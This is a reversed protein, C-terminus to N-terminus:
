RWLRRDYRDDNRRAVFRGRDLRRDAGDEGEVVRSEFHDRHVVPRRVCRTFDELPHARLPRPKADDVYALQGRLPQALVVREPLACGSRASLIEYKGVRVHHVLGAGDPPGHRMALGRAEIVERQNGVHV